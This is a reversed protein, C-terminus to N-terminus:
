PFSLTSSYVLSYHLFYMYFLSMSIADDKPKGFSGCFRDGFALTWLIYFSEYLHLILEGAMVILHM